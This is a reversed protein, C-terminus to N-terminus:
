VGHLAILSHLTFFHDLYNHKCNLCNCLLRFILAEVSNSGAHGRGVSSHLWANPVLDITIHERSLSLLSSLHNM